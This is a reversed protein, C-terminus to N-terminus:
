RGAASGLPLPRWLAALAITFNPLDQGRPAGARGPVAASVTFYGSPERQWWTQFNSQFNFGAPLRISECTCHFAFWAMLM